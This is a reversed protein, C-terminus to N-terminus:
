TGKERPDAARMSGAGFEFALSDPRRPATPAFNARLFLRQSAINDASVEALVKSRPRRARWATVAESVLNTGVGSGRFAPDVSVHITSEEGAPASDFRVQGLPLGAADEGILMTSNPDALREHFWGHHEADTIPGHSFSFRRTVPDNAWELLLWEDDPRAARLRLQANHPGSMVCAVRAAGFGDTLRYSQRSLETLRPNDNVLERLLRQWSECSMANAPGALVIYGADALARAVPVQNEAITAVVSPLGLCAREWTTVGGAGIGLDASAMLEALSALNEHFTINTSGHAVARARASAQTDCGLIADVALGAFEPGTLAQVVATMSETPDQAGFFVLIRRLIGDRVRLGRRLQRYSSHLLAYRPGLLCRCGAAVLQSYRQCPDAGLYNQDLLLDAEHPRNALDDIVMLRETAPKVQRQWVAGLGYHDVVIWGAKETGLAALTEAADQQQASEPHSGAGIAVPAPLRHVPYGAAEARAILHGPLARCVFRVPAGRSKLETALSLCRVLHGSGIHAGSDVRIVVTHRSM